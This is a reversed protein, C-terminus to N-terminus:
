FRNKVKPISKKKSIQAIVEDQKQKYKTKKEKTSKELVEPVEVEVIVRVKENPKYAHADNLDKYGFPDVADKGTQKQEEAFIKQGQKAIEDLNPAPVQNENTGEAFGTSTFLMSALTTTALVKYPFSKRKKM